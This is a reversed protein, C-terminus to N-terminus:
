FFKISYGSDSGSGPQKLEKKLNDLFICCGYVHDHRHWYFEKGRLISKRGM